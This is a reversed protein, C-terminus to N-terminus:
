VVSKRDQDTIIPLTGDLNILGAEYAEKEADTLDDVNVTIPEKEAPAAEEAAAETEAKETAAETAAETEEEAFATPVSGIVMMAALLASIVRRKM